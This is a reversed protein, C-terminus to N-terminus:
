YTSNLICAYALNPASMVVAKLMNHTLTLFIVLLNPNIM